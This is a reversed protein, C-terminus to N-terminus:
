SRRSTVIVKGDEDVTFSEITKNGGGRTLMVFSGINLLQPKKYM